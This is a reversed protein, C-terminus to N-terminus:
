KIKPYHAAEIYQLTQGESPLGKKKYKTLASTHWGPSGPKIRAHLGGCDSKTGALRIPPDSHAQWFELFDLFVTNKYTLLVSM